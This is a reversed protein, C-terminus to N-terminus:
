RLRVFVTKGPVVEADVSLVRADGSLVVVTFRGGPLPGLTGMSLPIRDLWAVSLRRGSPDFLALAANEVHGLITRAELEPKIRGARELKLNARVHVRARVELLVPRAVWANDQTWAYLRYTGEPIKPLTVESEPELERPPWRTGDGGESCRAIRVWLRPRDSREALAEPWAVAVDVTGLGWGGVRELSMEVTTTEGLRDIRIGELTVTEYRPTSLRISYIGPRVASIKVLSSTSEVRRTRAKRDTLHILLKGRPSVGSSSDVFHLELRCARQVLIEIGEDGATCEVTSAPILVHRRGAYAVRYRGAELGTIEFRGEPDCLGVLGTGIGRIGVPKGGADLRIAHVGARVPQGIENRLVGRISLGKDLLLVVGDMAETLETEARRYGAKVARLTIPYATEPSADLAFAGTEGTKVGFDGGILTGASDLGSVRAGAVVAGDALVVGRIKGAPAKAAEPRPSSVAQTPEVATPTEPSPPPRQARDVPAVEIPATRRPRVFDGERPAKGPVFVVLLLLLILFGVLGYVLRRSRHSRLAVEQKGAILVASVDDEEVTHEGRTISGDAGPGAGM